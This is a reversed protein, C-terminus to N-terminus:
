FYGSKLDYRFHTLFMAFGSEQIIKRQLFFNIQKSHYADYFYFFFTTSPTSDLGWLIVTQISIRVFCRMARVIVISSRPTRPRRLRRTKEAKIPRLRNTIKTELMKERIENFFLSFFSKKQILAALRKIIKSMDDDRLFMPTFRSSARTHTYLSCAHRLM